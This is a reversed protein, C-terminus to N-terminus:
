RGVASWSSPCAVTSTSSRRPMATSVDRRHGYLMDFDVFNTFVIARDPADSQAGRADRRVSAANGTAKIKQTIGQHAYIDAIKGVSIVEGGAALLSTSFRRPMHRHRSTEVIAPGPTTRRATVLSRDRAIVRGVNYEDVLERRSIASNMCVISASPRKM